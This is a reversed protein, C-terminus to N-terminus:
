RRRRAPPAANAPDDPWPHKPYRGRLEARVQAYSGAWFGPLDRTTQAPRRAPSLLRLLVPAGAIEPVTLVVPARNRSAREPMATLSMAASIPRARFTAVIREIVPVNDVPPCTLM